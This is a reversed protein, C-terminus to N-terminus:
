NRTTPPTPAVPMTQPRAKRDLEEQLVRSDQALESAAKQAKSSRAKSAALQADVQAQQALTRANDYDKSLMAANARELKDRASRMEAAAFEPGGASVANAVAAQSVAMQETPPPVSACAAALVALLLMPWRAAGRTSRPKHIPQMTHRRFIPNAFLPYAQALLATSDTRQRV